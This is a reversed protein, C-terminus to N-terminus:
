GVGAEENLLEVLRKMQREDIVYYNKKGVDFSFALAAARKGMGRREEELTDLWSKQISFSACETMKTKCEVLVAGAVVDGKSFATAGSNATRKGGLAKAVANEQQSSADRTTVIEKM